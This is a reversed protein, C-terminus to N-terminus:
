PKGGKLKKKFELLECTINNAYEILLKGSNSVIDPHYSKIAKILNEQIVDKPDTPNCQIIDWINIQPKSQKQKGSKLQMLEFLAESLKAELQVKEHNLNHNEIEVTRFRRITDDLQRKIYNIDQSQSQYSPNTSIIKGFVFEKDHDAITKSEKLGYGSNSRLEKIAAIMQKEFMRIWYVNNRYDKGSTICHKPFHVLKLFYLVGPIPVFGREPFIIKGKPTHSMINPKGFRNTSNYFLIPVETKTGYQISLNETTFEQRIRTPLVSNLRWFDFWDRKYIPVGTALRRSWEAITAM